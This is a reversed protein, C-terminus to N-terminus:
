DGVRTPVRGCSGAAFLQTQIHIPCVHTHAGVGEVVLASTLSWESSRCECAGLRLRLLTM